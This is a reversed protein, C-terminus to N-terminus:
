IHILSLHIGFSRGPTNSPTIPLLENQQLALTARISQYDAFESNGTPVLMNFSDAGGALLICVMAKYDNQNNLIHPRAAATNIM